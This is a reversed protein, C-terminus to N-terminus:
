LTPCVSRLVPDQENKEKGEKFPELALTASQIRYCTDLHVYTSARAVFASLLPDM